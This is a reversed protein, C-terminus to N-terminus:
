FDYALQVWWQRGARPHDDVYTLVPAPYKVDADFLNKIGARFSISQGFLETLSLTADTTAYADLKDRTDTSQRYTEDIYRYQLSLNTNSVPQYNIGLNAIWDTSGPLSKGTSDDDSELYSINADIDLNKSLKHKLEFEAGYMRASDTNTFGQTDIFVIFKDIKSNFLTVRYESSNNKHIYGLETTNIISGEVEASGPALALPSMEYFTPPRFARAYQAKFINNQDKRRVAALRPSLEADIDNYDDHRLGFTLTLKDNPRLEEQLTTSLIRRRKDPEVFNWSFLTAGSQQYENLEHDVNIDVYEVGLLVNHKKNDTWKFDVGANSRRERYFIDVEYPDGGLFDPATYLDDKTQENDQWGAFLESSWGSNFDFMQKINLTRYENETVIRKEDPPLFQNRGFHDGYGDELWQATLSYKDYNLSFIATRNETVENTPGPSNSFASNVGGNEIFLEDEGTIVDPGDTEWGAMNLNMTLPSKEDEYTLMIGTALTSNEGGAVFVRSEQKRTIVNIVGILAFEGHIASGPGRIIEIREVQEVPINMVPNAHGLHASNMSAGNLLIKSNGSAYTRGIGRIVVQKRGAEEISLEVGPVLALAEWVTRVGKNELEDGHLVMVMGPVYDANLRTKTALSTQQQLLELLQGLEQEEDGSIPEPSSNQAYISLPTILLSALVICKFRCM